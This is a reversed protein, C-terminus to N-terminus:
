RDGGPTLGKEVHHPLQKLVHLPLEKVIEYSLGGTLFIWQKYEHRWQTLLDVIGQAGGSQQAQLIPRSASTMQAGLAVAKAIHTGNMIGGSAIVVADAFSDNIRSRLHAYEADARVRQIQRLCEVTPIGVDWLHEVSAQDDRRLIEVGAWSTGGAGAVDIHRVGIDLLRKAVRGGIGAGVEKVVVPVSSQDVLEAIADLVGRFRPEGEPQVLEQLANIHVTIANAGVLEILSLTNERLSGQAHWEACQVGGVNALVVIDPAVDRVVSYTRAQEPSTLAARMSGLCMPINLEACAAAIDRNIQESGGYGGTMGGVMFPFSVQKGLFSTSTDIADFDMEPLANYELEIEDFGASKTRFRVDRTTVLEVHEQKRSPIGDASIKKTAIKQVSKKVAPTKASPAKSPPTKKM